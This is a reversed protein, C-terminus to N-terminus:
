KILLLKEMQQQNSAELKAFYIGSPLQKADFTLQYKGAQYYGQDLNVVMQGQTNYIKLAIESAEPLLFSLITTPNFPNPNAPYFTFETPSKTSQSKEDWGLLSWDLNNNIVRNGPLKEFPFRAVSLTDCTTHDRAYANYWYSGSPANHPINQYLNNRIIVALPGLSINNREIIPHITSDPLTIDTWVDITDYITQNNTIRLDFQFNGGTSLIQIPLNHPELNITVLDGELRILLANTQTLYWYTGTIIYGGDIAQDVSYSTESDDSYGIIKNWLMNGLCDTKVVWVNFLGSYTNGTQGTIIYGGDYIQQVYWGTESDQNDFNKTWLTDGDSNTKILLFNANMIGGMGTIIYGGDTTQQGWYAWGNYSKSWLSDGDANTKIILANLNTYDNAGIIIYGGDYTKQVYNGYLNGSGVYSKSWIINGFENLKVLFIRYNMGYPKVNGVLIYGDDNTQHISYSYADAYGSFIKTWLTDGNVDTKIVYIDGAPPWNVANVKGTIIYGGDSTQQVNYGHDDLSNPGNFTRQWTINGDIDTKVLLLDKNYSTLWTWGTFIYGGDITQEGRYGFASGTGNYYKTWLTDPPQASLLGVGALIALVTIIISNKM